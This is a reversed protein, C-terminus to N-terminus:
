GTAIVGRGSLAEIEDETYGLERLVEATHALNWDTAGLVSLMNGFNSSSGMRIYKIINAFIRRGEAGSRREGVHPYSRKQGSQPAVRERDVEDVGRDEAQEATRADRGRQRM